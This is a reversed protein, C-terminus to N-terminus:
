KNQQQLQQPSLGNNVPALQALAGAKYFASAVQPLWLYESV